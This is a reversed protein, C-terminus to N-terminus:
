RQWGLVDEIQAALTMPDFPKGLMAAVPTNTLETQDGSLVKATLLLVPISATRPDAALRRVTEPGDMDPMMVDVLIADPQEELAIQIAERGGGALLVTWGAVHGLAIRAIERIDPEDDVVLVRRNM